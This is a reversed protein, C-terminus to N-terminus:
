LCNIKISSNDEDAEVEEECISSSHCFPCYDSFIASYLGSAYREENCVARDDFINNCTLCRWVIIKM